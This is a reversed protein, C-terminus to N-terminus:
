WLVEPIPIGIGLWCEENLPIRVVNVHWSKISEISAEDVRGEFIGLNKICSYEGGSRNVGRLQPKIVIESSVILTAM